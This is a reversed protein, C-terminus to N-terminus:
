ASPHFGSDTPCAPHSYRCYDEEMWIGTQNSKTDLKTFCYDLALLSKSFSFFIIIILHKQRTTHQTGIQLSYNQDAIPLLLKIEMKKGRDHITTSFWMLIKSCLTAKAFQSFFVIFHSLFHSNKIMVLSNCFIASTLLDQFIQITSRKKM